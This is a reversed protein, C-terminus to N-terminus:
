PGAPAPAQPELVLTDGLNAMGLNNGLRSTNNGGTIKTTDLVVRNSTTDFKTEVVKASQLPGNDDEHAGPLIVAITSILDNTKHGLIAVGVASMLAVGAVLLGYEVM